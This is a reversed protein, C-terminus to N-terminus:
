LQTVCSHKKNTEMFLIDVTAYFLHFKTSQLFKTFRLLLQNGAEPAELNQCLLCDGKEVM